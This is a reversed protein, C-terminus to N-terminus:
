AARRDGGLARQRAVQEATTIVARLNEHLRQTRRRQRRVEARGTDQWRASDYRRAREIAAESRCVGPHNEQRGCVPDELVPRGPREHRRMPKGCRPVNM